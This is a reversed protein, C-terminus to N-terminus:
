VESMKKEQCFRIKETSKSLLKIEFLGEFGKGIMRVEIEMKEFERVLEESTMLMKLREKRSLADAVM